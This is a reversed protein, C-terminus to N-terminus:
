MSLKQLIRTSWQFAKRGKKNKKQKGYIFDCLYLIAKCYHSHQSRVMPKSDPIPLGNKDVPYSWNQLAIILQGCKKNIALAGPTEMLGRLVLLTNDITNRKGELFLGQERIADKYKKKTLNERKDATFLDGVITEYRYGKSLLKTCLGKENTGPIDILPENIESHEEFIVLMKGYRNQFQPLCPKIQGFVVTNPDSLGFDMGLCVTYAPDYEFEQGEVVHCWKGAIREEEDIASILQPFVRGPTSSEYKIEMEQDWIEQSIYKSRGREKISWEKNLTPNMTWHITKKLTAPNHAMQAFPNDRGKVTSIYIECDSLSSGAELVEEATKVHAFEDYDAIVGRGSRGATSGTLLGNLESKNDPISIYMLKDTDDAKEKWGGRMWIPLRNMFYRQKGFLSGMTRNDVEPQGLSLSYNIKNRYFLLIYGHVFRMLWSLGQKRSKEVLGPLEMKALWLMWTALDEQFDYAVFPIAEQGPVFTWCYVNIFYLISSRCLDMQLKQYEASNEAYIKANMRYALNDSVDLRYRLSVDRLIEGKKAVKEHIILPKGDAFKCSPDLAFTKEGGEAYMFKAKPVKPIQEATYVPNDDLTLINGPKL